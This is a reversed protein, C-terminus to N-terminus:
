MSRRHRQNRAALSSLSVSFVRPADNAGCSWKADLEHALNVVDKRLKRPSNRFHAPLKYCIHNPPLQRHRRCHHDPVCAAVCQSRLPRVDQNGRCTGCFTSRAFSQRRAVKCRCASCCKRFPKTISVRHSAVEVRRISVRAGWSVLGRTLNLRARALRASRWTKACPGNGCCHRNPSTFM